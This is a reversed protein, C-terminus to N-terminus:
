LLVGSEGKGQRSGAIKPITEGIEEPPMLFLVSKCVTADDESGSLARHEKSFRRSAEGRCAVSFLPAFTYRIM